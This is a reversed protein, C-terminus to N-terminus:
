QRILETRESGFALLRFLVSRDPITMKCMQRLYMAEKRAIPDCNTTTGRHSFPSDLNPFAGENRRFDCLRPLNGSQSDCQGFFAGHPIFCM